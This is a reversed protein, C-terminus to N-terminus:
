TANALRTEYEAALDRLAQGCDGAFSTLGDDGAVMGPTLLVTSMTM